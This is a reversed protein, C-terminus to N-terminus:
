VRMRLEDGEGNGGDLGVGSAVGFRPDQIWRGPKGPDTRTALRGPAELLFFPNSPPLQPQTASPPNSRHPPGAPPSPTVRMEMWPLHQRQHQHGSQPTACLRQQLPGGGAQLLNMLPGPDLLQQLFHLGEEQISLHTQSHGREQPYGMFIQERSDSVDPDSDADWWKNALLEQILGKHAKLRLKMMQLIPTIITVIKSPLQSSQTLDPM